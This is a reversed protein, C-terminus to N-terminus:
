AAAVPVATSAHLLVRSFAHHHEPLAQSLQQVASRIDQEKQFAKFLEEEVAASDARTKYKGATADELRKTAKQWSATLLLAQM